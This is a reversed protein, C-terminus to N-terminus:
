FSGQFPTVLNLSHPIGATSRMKATRRDPHTVWGGPVSGSSDPHFEDGAVGIGMRSSVSGMDPVV